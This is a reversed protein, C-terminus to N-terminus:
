RKTKTQRANTRAPSWAVDLPPEHCLWCVVFIDVQCVQVRLWQHQSVRCQVGDIHIRILADQQLAELLRPPPNTHSEFGARGVSHPSDDRLLASRQVVAAVSDAIAFLLTKGELIAHSAHVHVELGILQLRQKLSAVGSSTRTHTRTGEERKKEQAVGEGEERSQKKKQTEESKKSRNRTTGLPVTSHTNTAAQLESYTPSANTAAPGRRGENM